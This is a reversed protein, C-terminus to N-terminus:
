LWIDPDSNKVCDLVATREISNALSVVPPANPIGEAGVLDYKDPVEQKTHEGGDSDAEDIESVETVSYRIEKIDLFPYVSVHEGFEGIVNKLVRVVDV